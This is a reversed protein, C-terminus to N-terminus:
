VRPRGAPVAGRISYREPTPKRGHSASAANLATHLKKDAPLRGPSVGLSCGRRPRNRAPPNRPRRQRAHEPRFLTRM